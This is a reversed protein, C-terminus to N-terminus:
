ESFVQGLFIQACWQACMRKPTKNTHTLMSQTEKMSAVVIELPRPSRGTNTRYTHSQVQSFLQFVSDLFHIFVEMQSSSKLLSTTRSEADSKINYITDTSTTPTGGQSFIKIRVSLTSNLTVFLTIGIITGTRRQTMKPLFLPWASRDGEVWTMAQRITQKGQSGSLTM